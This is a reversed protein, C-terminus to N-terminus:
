MPSGQDNYVKGDNASIRIKKNGASSKFEIVYWLWNNPAGQSLTVIEIAEPYESMYSFGGNDDSIKLAESYSIKWFQDQIPSLDKGLYDSKPIVARIPKGEFDISYSWWNEIDGASGFVFTEVLSEPNLNPPVIFNYGVFTADPKWLHAAIKAKELNAKTKTTVQLSDQSTLNNLSTTTNTNKSGGFSCGAMLSVTLFVLLFRIYKM